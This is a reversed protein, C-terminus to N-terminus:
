AARCRAGRECEGLPGLRLHHRRAGGPRPARVPLNSRFIAAIGGSGAIVAGEVFVQPAYADYWYWWIFFSPPSYVPWGFAMFLPEGLQPQFGLRWATWETAAWIFALAISCVVIIQSWLIKGAHM